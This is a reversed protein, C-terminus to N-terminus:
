DQPVCDRSRRAMEAGSQEMWDECLIGLTALGWTLNSLEQTGFDAVRLSASTAVIRMAEEDKYMVTACAWVLNSMNQPQFRPLQILSEKIILRFRITKEGESGRASCCCMVNSSAFPCLGLM